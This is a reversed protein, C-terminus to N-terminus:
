APNIIHWECTFVFFDLIRKLIGIAIVTFGDIVGGEVLTDVLSLGYVNGFGLPKSSLPFMVLLFAM